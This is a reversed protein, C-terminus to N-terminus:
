FSGSYSIGASLGHDNQEFDVTPVRLCVCARVSQEKQVVIRDSIITETMQPYRCLVSYHM